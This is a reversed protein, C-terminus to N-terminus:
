HNDNIPTSGPPRTQTRSFILLRPNKSPHPSEAEQDGGGDAEGGRRGFVVSWEPSAPVNLDFEVRHHGQIHTISSAAPGGDSSAAAASKEANASGDYHCRKHGGLAQGTPFSKDCISCVHARPKSCPSRATASSTTATHPSKASHSPDDVATKILRHSAKHGGLAQFSRFTRRCVDCKYSVRLQGPVPPLLLMPPPPPAFNDSSSGLLDVDTADRGRSLMLLCLALYKEEDTPPPDKSRKTRKRKVSSSDAESRDATSIMAPLEMPIPVRRAIPSNLAARLAM